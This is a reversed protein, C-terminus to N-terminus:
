TYTSLLHNVSYWIGSLLRICPFDNMYSSSTLVIFCKPKNINSLLLTAHVRAPAILYRTMSMLNSELCSYFRVLKLIVDEESRSLECLLVQVAYSCFCLFVSTLCHDSGYLSYTFMECKRCEVKFYECMSDIFSM